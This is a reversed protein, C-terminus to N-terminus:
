GCASPAPADENPLIGPTTRLVPDGPSAAPTKMTTVIVSSQGPPLERVVNTVPRGRFETTGVPARQGDVTMSTIEGGRPGFIKVGLAMNGPSVFVGSGVISRPLRPANPPANSVLTTTTQLEQAGGELCRMSRLTTRMGLYFEMKTSGHDNVYIGVQPLGSGTDLVGSIGSTQIRKQEAEDRSWLMLRQETVGRVLARIVAVSDGTGAVTADFIRRAAAEFLDDQKDINTPYKLYIANLLTSVANNINITFGDGIDVAGLGGLMYAMAVPDVVVVGDFQEKWRKGVVAAALEAARPFDPHMTTNRMDTAITSQFAAREDKTLKIAPKRLPQIDRIGGQKGMKLKGDKTTIVAASGAMGALSRVEANNMILLLYSRRRGDSALMSPMLRAADDAASAAVATRDFRDQFQRMPQRLPGILGDVDFAGVKRNAETLVKDATVMVPAADAVAELDIRGNKPRYTELRVKDAVDVVGPLVQDVVQDIERAVTRVADVNRGLIPVHAGFWWLPGDTSNHARSTSEDLLVLSRRAADVDGEVINEQLVGARDDAEQIASYARFAEWTFLLGALVVLVGIIALARQRPNAWIDDLRRRMGRSRRGRSRSPM